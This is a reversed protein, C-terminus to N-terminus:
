RCPPARRLGQHGADDTRESIVHRHREAGASEDVRERDGIGFAQVRRQQGHEGRERQRERKGGPVAAESADATRDGQATYGTNM